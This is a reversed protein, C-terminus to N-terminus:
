PPEKFPVTLLVRRQSFTLIRTRMSEKHAARGWREADNRDMLCKICSERTGDPGFDHDCDIM